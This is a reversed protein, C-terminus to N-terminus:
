DDLGELGEDLSGLPVAERLANKLSEEFTIRALVIGHFDEKHLILGKHNTRQKYILCILSDLFDLNWMMASLAM